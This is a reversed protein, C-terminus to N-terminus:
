PIAKALYCYQNDATIFTWGAAAFKEVIFWNDRHTGEHGETEQEMRLLKQGGPLNTEIYEFDIEMQEHTEM